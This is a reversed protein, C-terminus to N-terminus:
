PAAPDSGLLDILAVARETRHVHIERGIRQRLILGATELRDCHYTVANPAHQIVKALRSMTLPRDLGRLIAARVDGIVLVLDDAKGSPRPPAVTLTGIGPLPYGIWVADPMDLQGALASRGALMPKLVLRRSGLAHEAPWADPFSLVGGQFRCDAHMGNLVMDLGGRVAAVAVREIEHDLLPRARRWIPAMVQWVQELLDAYGRLWREPEDVAPQWHPQPDGQTIEELEDLLADKPLDRLIEIQTEIRVDTSLDGPLVLNPLRSGFSPALSRVITEDHSKIESQILRRWTEPAGRTRGSLSDIILNLMSPGPALAVSV